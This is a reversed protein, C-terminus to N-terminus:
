FITIRKLPIYVKFIDKILTKYGDPEIRSFDISIDRKGVLKMCDKDTLKIKYNNEEYKRKLIRKEYKQTLYEVEIVKELNTLDEGHIFINIM